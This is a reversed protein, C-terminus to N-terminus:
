MHVCLCTHRWWQWLWRRLWVPHRWGSLPRSYTLQFSITSYLPPSRLVDIRGFRPLWNKRAARFMRRAAWFMSQATVVQLAMKDFPDWDIRGPYKWWVIHIMVKASKRNRPMTANKERHVTLAVTPLVAGYSGIEFHSPFPIAQYVSEGVTKEIFGAMSEHLQKSITSLHSSSTLFATLEPSPYGPMMQKRNKRELMRNICHHGSRQRM